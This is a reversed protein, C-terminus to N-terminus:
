WAWTADVTAGGPVLNAGVRRAPVDVLETGPDTRLVVVIMAATGRLVRM